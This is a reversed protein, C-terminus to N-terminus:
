PEITFTLPLQRQFITTDPGATCGVYPSVTVTWTGAQRPTGGFVPTGPLAVLEVGPPLTGSVTPAYGPNSVRGMEGKCTGGVGNTYGAPLDASPVRPERVEM